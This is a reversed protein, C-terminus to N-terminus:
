QLCSCDQPNPKPAPQDIRPPLLHNFGKQKKQSQLFFILVRFPDLLSIMAPEGEGGGWRTITGVGPKPCSFGKRGAALLIASSPWQWRRSCRCVCRGPRSCAPTQVDSFCCCCCSGAEASRSSGPHFPDRLPFLIKGLWAFGLLPLSALEATPPLPSRGKNVLSRSSAIQQTQVEERNCEAHCTRWKPGLRQQCGEAQYVCATHRGLRNGRWRIGPKAEKM